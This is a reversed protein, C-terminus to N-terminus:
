LFTDYSIIFLGFFPHFESIFLDYRGLPASRYQGVTCHRSCSQRSARGPPLTVSSSSSRRGPENSTHGMPPGTVLCNLITSKAGFTRSACGGIPASVHRVWGFMVDGSQNQGVQEMVYFCSTMWSVPLLYYLNNDSFSQAM